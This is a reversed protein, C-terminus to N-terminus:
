LIDPWPVERSSQNVSSAVHVSKSSKTSTVLPEGKKTDPRVKVMFPEPTNAFRVVLRKKQPHVLVKARKAIGTEAAFKKMNPRQRESGEEHMTADTFYVKRGKFPM